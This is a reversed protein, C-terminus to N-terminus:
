ANALELGAARLLQRIEALAAPSRPEVPPRCVDSALRGCLRMATKMRPYNEWSPHSAGYVLETLPALDDYIRRAEALRDGSVAAFLATIREPVFSAFGVLAGDIGQVMSPLLFEDQCTLITAQPNARRIARISKEYVAMERPGLKFATVWPLEALRALLSPPYTAKTAAPFVHAILPLGVAEGVRTFHSLVHAEDMGYRLWRSAPMLLLASAGAAKAMQGHEIADETREAYIGSIVPVRGGVANAAIRTAEAREAPSLAFVEGAIGNTAIGAMGPTGAIWDVLRELEAADVCNVRDAFSPRRNYDLM